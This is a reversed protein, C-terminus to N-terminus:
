RQVQATSPRVRKPPMPGTALPSPVHPERPNWRNPQLHNPLHSDIKEQPIQETQTTSPRKRLIPKLPPKALRSSSSSTPISGASKQILPFTTNRAEERHEEMARKFVPDEVLYHTPQPNLNTWESGEIRGEIPRIAVAFPHCDRMHPPVTNQM